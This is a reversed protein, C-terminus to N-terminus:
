EHNHSHEAIKMHYNAQQLRDNRAQYLHLLETNTHLANEAM